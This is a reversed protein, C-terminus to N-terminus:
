LFKKLHSAVFSATHTALLFAEKKVALTEHLDEPVKVAGNAVMKSFLTYIMAAGTAASSIIKGPTVTMGFLIKDQTTADFENGMDVYEELLRRALELDQYKEDGKKGQKNMDKDLGLTHKGIMLTVECKAETFIQKHEDMCANMSLAAALSVLILVGFLILDFMTVVLVAPMGGYVYMTGMTIFFKLTLWIIVIELLVSVAMRENSRDLTCYDRIRWFAAVNASIRLDLLPLKGLVTASQDPDMGFWMCSMLFSQSFKVRSRADVLASIIVTQVLNRRYEFLIFIFLGIWALSVLFTMVTSYAVLRGAPGFVDGPWINGGLVYKLWLRPLFSRILSLVIVFGMLTPMSCFWEKVILCLDKANSLAAKLGVDLTIPKEPYFQERVLWLDIPWLSKEKAEETLKNLQGFMGTEEAHDPDNALHDTVEQEVCSNWGPLTEMIRVLDEIFVTGGDEDVLKTNEHKTKGEEEDVADLVQVLREHQVKPLHINLGHENPRYRWSRVGAEKYKSTNLSIQHFLWAFIIVLLIMFESLIFDVFDLFNLQKDQILNYFHSTGGGMSVILVPAAWLLLGIITALVLVVRFIQLDKDNGVMHKMPLAILAAIPWLLLSIFTWAFYMYTHFKLSEIYVQLEFLRGHMSDMGFTGYSGMFYKKSHEDKSEEPLLGRKSSTQQPSHKYM